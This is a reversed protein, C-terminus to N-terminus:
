ELQPAVGVARCRHRDGGSGLPVAVGGCGSAPERMRKTRVVLGATLRDGTGIAPQSMSVLGKLLPSNRKLTVGPHATHSYGRRHRGVAALLGGSRPGGTVPGSALGAPLAGGLHERLATGLGSTARSNSTERWLALRQCAPQCASPV